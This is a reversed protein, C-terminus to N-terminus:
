LRSMVARLISPVDATDALLLALSAVALIALPRLAKALAAPIDSAQARRLGYWALTFVLVLALVAYALAALRPLPSM